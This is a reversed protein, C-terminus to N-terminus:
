RVDEGSAREVHDDVWCSWATDRVALCRPNLTKGVVPQDFWGAVVPWHTVRPAFGNRSVCTRPDTPPDLARDFSVWTRLLTLQDTVTLVQVIGVLPERALFGTCAVERPSL